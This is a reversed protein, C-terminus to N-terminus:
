DENMAPRGLILSALLTPNKRIYIRFTDSSWRGAAQILDPPVGEAALATARDAKHAPLLFEYGRTYTTVSHRMIVKRWDQLYQRDPWVLEGIRLLGNFATFLIALFLKDDHSSSLHYHYRSSRLQARTLPLKRVTAIALSSRRVTRVDPFFPELESCIGSLYSDVSKPRIHHCMFVVYFSFTDPTPQIAFNHIRCFYLYSHLASSYSARTSSELAFGLAISREHVLRERTWPARTPQRSSTGTINM